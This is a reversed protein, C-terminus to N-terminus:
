IKGYAIEGKEFDQKLIKRARYLRTRVNEETIGLIKSIRETSLDEFYFLQVVIKLKEDLCDLDYFIKYQEETQLEITDDNLPVVKRRWASKRLNKCLNITTRIIWNNLHEEDNFPKKNMMLKLFVEQVVDEADLKSKLNIYAFRYIVPTYKKIIEDFEENMM